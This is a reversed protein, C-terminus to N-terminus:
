AASWDSLVAAQRWQIAICPAQSARKDGAIVEASGAM